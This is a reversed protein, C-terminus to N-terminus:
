KKGKTGTLYLAPNRTKFQELLHAIRERYLKLYMSLAVVKHTHANLCKTQRGDSVEECALCLYAKHLPVPPPLTTAGWAKLRRYLTRIM